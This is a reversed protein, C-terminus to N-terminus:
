KDGVHVNFREMWLGFNVMRWILFNFPRKGQVIEQAYAVSEPKLIGQTQNVAHSIQKLFREPQHEKIWVEEPTAFGLKDMRMRIKEPLVGRMGERLVRKTVGDSIRYHGPLTHVFEVLRYDLFPTRSEISHAMSNRDEYRLLAPLNHTMQRACQDRVSEYAAGNFPLHDHVQLRELNLWPTTQGMRQKATGFYHRASQKLLRRWAKPANAVVTNGHRQRISSIEQFFRIWRGQFFLDALRHNFFGFYGALQEDAGQGDLMVKVDRQRALEFVRWQAYISTSGFPEDQHWTIEPALDFLKELAPYTHHAELSCHANVIDMYHSEDYAKVQARASFTKQRHTAQQQKLQEHALCVIASSDLGGSLCFGVDVDARMRLQVSQQLLQRFQQAAEQESGQFHGAPLTYWRKIELHESALDYNLCEGGRLQHVGRFLTGSTHDTAGGALYDYVRQNDTTAQWGPLCTFQKIESAIALLGSPSRWYYLPKVGFRDRAAFVCQTVTDYVIFAFMGNCRQLANEGWTQYAHVLVETDSATQFRKGLAELEKRLEVYNYIEGNYSVWYRGDPSCMPQHGAPSLDIISLRRHGLIANGRAQKFSTVIQKPCYAFPAYLVNAPTDGDAIVCPESNPQFVVYGADDPGRHRVLTLMNQMDSLAAEAQKAAFLGAIGCM